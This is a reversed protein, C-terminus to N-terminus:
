EVKGLFSEASIGVRGKTVLEILYRMAEVRSVGRDESVQAARKIVQRAMILSQDPGAGLQAFLKRLMEIEAEESMESGETM